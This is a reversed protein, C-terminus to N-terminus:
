IWVITLSNNDQEPHSGSVTDQLYDFDGEPEM